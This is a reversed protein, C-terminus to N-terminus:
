LTSLQTRTDRSVKTPAKRERSECGCLIIMGNEELM